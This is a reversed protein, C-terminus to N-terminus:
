PVTQQSCSCVMPKKAMDRLSCSVLTHFVRGQWLLCLQAQVELSSFNDTYCSPLLMSFSLAQFWPFPDGGEKVESGDTNGLISMSSQNRKILCVQTLSTSLSIAMALSPSVFLQCARKGVEGGSAAEEDLPM